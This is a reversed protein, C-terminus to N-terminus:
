PVIQFLLAAKRHRIRVLLVHGSQVQSSPTLWMAPPQGCGVMFLIYMSLCLWVPRIKNFAMELPLMPPLRAIASRPDVGFHMSYSAGIRGRLESEPMKAHIRSLLCGGALPRGGEDLGSAMIMVSPALGM